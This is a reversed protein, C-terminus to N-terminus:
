LTNSTVSTYPQYLAGIKSKRQRLRFPPSFPCKKQDQRLVKYLSNLLNPYFSLEIRVSSVTKYVAVRVVEDQSKISNYITMRIDEGKVSVSAAVWHCISVVLLLITDIGHHAFCERSQKKQKTSSFWSPILRQRPYDRGIAVSQYPKSILGSRFASRDMKYTTRLNEGAKKPLLVPLKAIQQAIPDNNELTPVLLVFARWRLYIDM